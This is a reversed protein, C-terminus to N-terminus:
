HFLFSDHRPAPSNHGIIYVRNFIRINSCISFAVVVVNNKSSDQCVCCPCTDLPMSRWVDHLGPLLRQTTGVRWDVSSYPQECIRAEKKRWSTSSHIVTRAMDSPHSGQLNTPQYTESSQLRRRLVAARLDSSRKRWSTSSHIM